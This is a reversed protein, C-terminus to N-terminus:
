VVFGGSRDTPVVEGLATVVAGSSVNEGTVTIAGGYVPIGRQATSDIGDEVGRVRAAPNTLSQPKTEDYRGQADYVRHVLAIDGAPVAITAAGNPAVPVVAVTRAGGVATTNILRIEGRTVYAPYNLASQVTVQGGAPTGVELDLRPVAGLGDFSVQVDAQQIALDIARTQAVVRADGAVQTGNIAISFGDQAGANQALLVIATAGMLRAFTKGSLMQM